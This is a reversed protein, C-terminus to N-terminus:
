SRKKSLEMMMAPDQSSLSVTPTVSPDHPYVGARVAAVLQHNLPVIQGMAKWMPGLAGEWGNELYKELVPKSPDLGMTGAIWGDRLAAMGGIRTFSGGTPLLRGEFQEELEQELSDLRKQHGVCHQPICNRSFNAEAHCPLSAPIGLHSELVERAQRVAEEPTPIKVGPKEYHHGGMLVFLKTGEPEEPHNNGIDSDFFVGLAHHPNVEESVARPILYGFGPPKLNPEPFWLNVAMISVNEFEQLTPLKGPVLSNLDQAGITSYVKDFPKSVGKKDTVTIKKSSPSYVLKKLPSSTKIKVNPQSRLAAELADPLAQLGQSGFHLLAGKQDAIDKAMKRVAPDGMFCALTWLDLSNAVIDAGTKRTLFMKEVMPYLSVQASLKDIDGGYIGHILGSMINDAVATTGCLHRMFEAITMEREPMPRGSLIFKLYGLAAAPLTKWWLEEKTFASLVQLISTPVPVIHDPYFLYRPLTPAVQPKLGLRICLDYFVLDDFRATNKTLSSLSRPGREFNVIGKKGGVDVPVQDTRVWGGLRSNAEYITIKTSPRVVSAMYYAATLGTLGGGIIAIDKGDAPLPQSPDVEVPESPNVRGAMDIGFVGHGGNNNLSSSDSGAGSAYYRQHPLRSTTTQRADQGRSISHHLLASRTTLSLCRACRPTFFGLRSSSSTLLAM